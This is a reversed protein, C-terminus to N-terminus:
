LELFYLMAIPLVTGAMVLGATRWLMRLSGKARVTAVAFWGGTVLLVVGALLIVASTAGGALTESRVFYRYLLYLYQVVVVLAIAALIVATDRRYSQWIKAHFPDRKPVSWM